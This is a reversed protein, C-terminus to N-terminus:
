SAIMTKSDSKFLKSVLYNDLNKYNLVSLIFSAGSILIGQIGGVDSLIDLLTYGNRQILTQDMNIQLIIGEILDAERHYYIKNAENLRFVSSDQLETVEDLNFAM